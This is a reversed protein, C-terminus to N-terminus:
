GNVKWTGGKDSGVREVLGENRLKRVAYGIGSKSMSLEKALEEYTISPNKGMLLLIKEGTKEGTKEKFDMEGGTNEKSDVEGGIEIIAEETGNAETDKEAGPMQPRYMTVRIGGCSEEFLPEPLGASLFGNRIKTIGRGWSEIFGAKYFVAAINPNRPKSSHDLMLSEITMDFPLGGDNWLEIKDNWVKMQTHVGTYLKHIISNFIAERLSDEPIELPEIRQLGEYHIPSILYKSRLINVVRDAMRILDGEIVDQFILDSDDKIFRGIRFDCSTVFKGPNKGFLLIAANKLKGDDLLNLNDLVVAIDDTISEAAMRNHAVSMRQFYMVAEPDIDDLTARESVVDDWTLGLKKMLFEHLAAGKLEQKTSGSRYHYVGRYAIPMNSKPVCIEIYEKGEASLLNVDAVIGLTTVIKNPIEELLSKSNNLGIVQGDDNIGIYIKGGQANAFGCIWKLYEDRWSEKWETNQSEAM